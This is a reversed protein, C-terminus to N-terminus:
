PRGAPLDNHFDRRIRELLRRADRGKIDPAETALFNRLARARDAGAVGQALRLVLQRTRDPFYASRLDAIIRAAEAGTLIGKRVAGRLAYRTNILPESLPRWTEGCYTVAVEDDADLVGRRFLRFISGVGIMGYRHLEVARLAGMSAAGYVAVGSELLALVEKPSVALSQYFEGDIIGVASPKAALLPDLDGRKVPPLFTADLLAAAASPHLSPGTFVVVHSRDACM